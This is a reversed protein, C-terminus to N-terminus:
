RSSSRSCSTSASCGTPTRARAPGRRMSWDIFPSLAEECERMDRPSSRRPTSCSGRWARGVPLRARLLPLRRKARRARRRGHRRGRQTEGRELAALGALLESAAPASCWRGSSSAPAPRPSPTPSTSPTSRRRRERLRSALRGAQARLAPESKASLVLPIPGALPRSASRAEEPPPQPRAEARARAGGGLDPPRQHRQRRLLLGRRPPPPRQGGVRAAETLLEVEGAEWDVKTSPADVHLTKPM